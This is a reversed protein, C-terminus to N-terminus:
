AGRDDDEDFADADDGMPREDGPEFELLACRVIRLEQQLAYIQQSLDALRGELSQQTELMARHAACLGTPTGAEALAVCGERSCPRARRMFPYVAARSMTESM